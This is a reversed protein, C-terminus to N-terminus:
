ERASVIFLFMFLIDFINGYSSIILFQVLILYFVSFYEYVIM